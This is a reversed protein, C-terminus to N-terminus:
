LYHGQHRACTFMPLYEGNVETYDELCEVEGGCPGGDDDAASCGQHAGGPCIGQSMLGTICRGYGDVDDVPVYIEHERGCVTCNFSRHTLETGNKGKFSDETMIKEENSM